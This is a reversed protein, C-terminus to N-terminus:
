QMKHCHKRTKTAFMFDDLELERRIRTGTTYQISIQGNGPKIDKESIRENNTNDRASQSFKLNGTKTQFKTVSSFSNKLHNMRSFVVM